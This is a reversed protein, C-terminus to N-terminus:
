SAYFPIFLTAIVIITNAAFMVWGLRSVNHNSPPNGTSWFGVFGGCIAGIAWAPWSIAIIGYAMFPNVFKAGIPFILGMVFLIISMAVLLKDM